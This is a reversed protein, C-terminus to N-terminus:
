QRKWYKRGRDPHFFTRPTGGRKTVAFTNSGPDYYLTDGNSRQKTLTGPPPHTVFEHAGSEYDRASRYQPFEAGHKRWHRQANEESGVGGSSWVTSTNEAESFEQASTDYITSPTSQQAPDNAARELFGVGLVSALALACVIFLTRSFGRL